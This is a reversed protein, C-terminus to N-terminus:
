RSRCLGPLREPMAWGAPWSVSYGIGYYTYIMVPRGAKVPVRRALKMTDRVAKESPRYDAIEEIHDM